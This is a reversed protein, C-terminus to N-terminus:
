KSLLMAKISSNRFDSRKYYAWPLHEKDAKHFCVINIIQSPAEEAFHRTPHLRVSSTTLGGLSRVRTYIDNDRKRIVEEGGGHQRSQPNQHLFFMLSKSFKHASFTSSPFFSHFVVKSSVSYSTAPRAQLCLSSGIRFPLIFRGRGQRRYQGRM